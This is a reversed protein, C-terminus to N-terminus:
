QCSKVPQQYLKKTTAYLINNAKSITLDYKELFQIIEDIIINENQTNKTELEQM